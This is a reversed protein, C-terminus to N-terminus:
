SEYLSEDPVPVLLFDGVHLSDGSLDNLNRLEKTNTGFSVAISHLTDGPEVQYFGYGPPAVVEDGRSEPAAAPPAPAPKNSRQGSKKSSGSSGPITLRQGVRLADPNRMGNADVIQDASVGYRKAIRYLTDGAVVTHVAGASPTSPKSTGSPPTSATNGKRGPIYLEQGARLANPNTIRNEAILRDVGVGYRRSISSLTEGPQVRHYSGDGSRSSTPAQSREGDRFSVQGSRGAAGLSKMDRELRSVRGKTAEIDRKMQAIEGNSQGDAGYRSQASLPALMAASLGVGAAISKLFLTQEVMSM